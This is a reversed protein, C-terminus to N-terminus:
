FVYKIIIPSFSSAWIFPIIGVAKNTGGGPSFTGWLPMTNDPKIGGWPPLFLETGWGPSLLTYLALDSGVVFNTLLTMYKVSFGFGANGGFTALWWRYDTVFKNFRQASPMFTAPGMFVRGEFLLREFPPPVFSVAVSPHVMLIAHDKPSEEEKVKADASASSTNMSRSRAVSYPAANAVYGTGLSLQGSVGIRNVIEPLKLSPIYDFVTPLIDYGVSFGIFPQGNSVYYTPYRNRYAQRVGGTDSFGLYRWFFGLDSQTYLGRPFKYGVVDSTRGSEEAKAAAQKVVAGSDTQREDDPAARVPGPLALM